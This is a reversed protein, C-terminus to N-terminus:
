YSWGLLRTWGHNAFDTYLASKTLPGYYGVAPAVNLAVQYRAVANKTMSGYYGFPIGTPVNLYGMESLLAQLTVVNAGTSGITLNPSVTINQTEAHARPVVIVAGMVFALAFISSAFIRSSTALQTIKNM